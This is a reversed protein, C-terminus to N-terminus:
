EIMLLIEFVLVPQEVQLQMTKRDLLQGRQSEIEVEDHRGADQM